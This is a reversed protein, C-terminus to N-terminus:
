ELQDELKKSLDAIQKLLYDPLLGEAELERRTMSLVTVIRKIASNRRSRRQEIPDKIERDSLIKKVQAKVEKPERAQSLVSQRLESFDSPTINENNKALRLINVSEYNPIVKPEADEAFDNKVIRPEEKELFMYSKLLKSATTDRIGLEKKCYTEFALYGWHKFLKDKHISFLYQGLEIWSAKHRRAIEMTKKRLEDKDIELTATTM